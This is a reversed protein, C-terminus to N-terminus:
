NFPGVKPSSGLAKRLTKTMNWPSNSNSSKQLSDFLHCFGAACINVISRRTPRMRNPERKMTFSTMIWWIHRLRQHDRGWKWSFRIITTRMVSMVWSWRSASSWASTFWTSFTFFLFWILPFSKAVMHSSNKSFNWVAKSGGGWKQFILNCIKKYHRSITANICPPM